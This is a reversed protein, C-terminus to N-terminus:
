APARGRRVDGLLQPAAPRGRGASRPRRDVGLAPGLDVARRDDVLGALHRDLDVALDAVPDDHGDPDGLRLELRESKAPVFITAASAPRVGSRTMWAPPRRTFM